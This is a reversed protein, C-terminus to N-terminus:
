LLTETRIRQAPAGGGEWMRTTAAPAGTSVKLVTLRELDGYLEVASKGVAGSLIAATVKMFRKDQLLQVRRGEEEGQEGRKRKSVGDAEIFDKIGAFDRTPGFAIFKWPVCLHQRHGLLTTKDSVEPRRGRVAHVVPQTM